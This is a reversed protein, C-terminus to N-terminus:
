PPDPPRGNAFYIGRALRLMENHAVAARTRRPLGGLNGVDHVLLRDVGIRDGVRRGDDRGAEAYSIDDAVAHEIKAADDEIDIRDEGIALFPILRDRGFDSRCAVLRKVMKEGLVVIRSIDGIDALLIQHTVADATRDIMGADILQEVIEGVSPVPQSRAMPM